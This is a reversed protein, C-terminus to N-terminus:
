CIRLVCTFSVPGITRQNLRVIIMKQESVFLGNGQQGAFKIQDEDFKCTLLVGYFRPCILSKM